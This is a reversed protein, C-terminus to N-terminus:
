CGVALLNENKTAVGSPDARAKLGRLLTAVLLSFTTGM